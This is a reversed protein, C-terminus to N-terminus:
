KEEMNQNEKLTDKIMDVSMSLNLSVSNLAEELRMIEKQQFLGYDILKQVENELDSIRQKYTNLDSYEKDITVNFNIRIKDIIHDPVTDVNREWKSIASPSCGLEQSLSVLTMGRSKRFDKLTM